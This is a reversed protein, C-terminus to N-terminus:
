RKGTRGAMRASATGTSAAARKKTPLRLSDSEQGSQVAIADPEKQVKWIEKLISQRETMSVASKLAEQLEPISQRSM